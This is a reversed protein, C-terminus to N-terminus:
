WFDSLAKRWAGRCNNKVSSHCYNAIDGTMSANQLGRSYLALWFVIQVHSVPYFCQILLFCRKWLRSGYEFMMENLTHWRESVTRISDLCFTSLCFLSSKSVNPWSSNEGGSLEQLAFTTLAQFHGPSSYKENRYNIFRQPLFIGWIGHTLLLTPEITPARHKWWYPIPKIGQGVTMIIYTSNTLERSQLTKIWTSRGGFVLM